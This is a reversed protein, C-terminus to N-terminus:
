GRARRPQRHHAVRLDTGAPVGPARRLERPHRAGGRVAGLRRHNAIDSMDYNNLRNIYDMAAIATTLIHAPLNKNESLESGSQLVIKELLEILENSRNASMHRSRSCSSTPARPGQDAGGLQHCPPPARTEGEVETLVKPGSTSREVLYCAHQKYVWPMTVDVLEDDCCEGLRLLHQHQPYEEPRNNMDMYIKMLM